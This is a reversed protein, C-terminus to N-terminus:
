RVSNILKKMREFKEVGEEISIKGGDTIQDVLLHLYKIRGSKSLAELSGLFNDLGKEKYITHPSNSRQNSEQKTHSRKRRNDLIIESIKNLSNERQEKTDYPLNCKKCLEIQDLELQKETQLRSSYSIERISQLEQSLTDKITSFITPINSILQLKAM